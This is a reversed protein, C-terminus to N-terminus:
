RESAQNGDHPSNKKRFSPTISSHKTNETKGLLAAENLTLGYYNGSLQTGGRIHEEVTHIPKDLVVRGEAAHWRENAQEERERTAKNLM